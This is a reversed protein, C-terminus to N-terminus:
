QYVSANHKKKTMKKDDFNTIMSGVYVKIKTKIYKDHYGYVSKNEFDIKMLM